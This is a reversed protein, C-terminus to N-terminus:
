TRRRIGGGTPSSLYLWPTQGDLGLDPGAPQRAPRARLEGIFKNFYRGHLSGDATRAGRFATAITELLWVLEQVVQRGRGEALAKHRSHCARVEIIEEAQHDLSPRVPVDFLSRGTHETWGM